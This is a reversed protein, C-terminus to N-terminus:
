GGEGDDDCPEQETMLYEDSAVIFTLLREIEAFAQDPALAAAALECQPVGAHLL